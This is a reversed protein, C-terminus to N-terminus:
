QINKPFATKHLELLTERMAEKRLIRLWEWNDSM